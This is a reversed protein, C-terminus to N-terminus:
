AAARRVARSVTHQADRLVGMYWLVLTLVAGAWLALVIVVATSVSGVGARGAVALFAVGVYLFCLVFPTVLAFVMYTIAGAALKRNNLHKGVGRLFLMSLIFGVPLFVINFIAGLLALTKVGSAEPVSVCLFSGIAAVVAGGIWLLGALGNVLLVILAADEDEPFRFLFLIGLSGVFYVLGAALWLVAGLRMLGLGSVVSKWGPDSATTEQETEQAKSWDFDQDRTPRRRTPREGDLNAFPSGEDEEKPPPAPKRAAAPPPKPAAAAAPASPIPFVAACSPCRVKKGAKDESVRLAKQCEPCKVTFLM